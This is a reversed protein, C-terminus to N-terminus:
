MDVTLAQVRPFLEKSIGDFRLLSQTAGKLIEEDGFKSVHQLESAMNSLEQTTWNASQGTSRLTTEVQRMAILAENYNQLSKKGIDLATTFTKYAIAALGINKALGMISKDLSKVQTNAKEEGEVGFILRLKQTIDNM